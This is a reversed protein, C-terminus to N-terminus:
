CSAEIELLLRRVIFDQNSLERQILTADDMLGLNDGDPLSLIEGVLGSLHTSIDSIDEQCKQLHLRTHLVPESPIWTPSGVTVTKEQKMHLYKLRKLMNGSPDTATAPPTETIAPSETKEMEELEELRQRIEM